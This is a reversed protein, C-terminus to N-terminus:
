TWEPPPRCPWIFNGENDADFHEDLLKQAFADDYSALTVLARTILKKTDDLGFLLPEISMDTKAITLISAPDGDAHDVNGPMYSMVVAPVANFVPREEADEDDSQDEEVTARSPCTRTMKRPPVRPTPTAAAIQGAWLTGDLPRQPVVTPNKKKCHECWITMQFVFDPDFGTPHRIGAALVNSPSLPHGCHRCRLRAVHQSAFTPLSISAKLM